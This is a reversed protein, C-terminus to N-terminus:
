RAVMEGGHICSFAAIEVIEAKQGAVIGECLRAIEPDIITM